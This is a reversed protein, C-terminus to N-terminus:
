RGLHIIADIVKSFLTGVGVAIIALSAFFMLLIVCTILFAEIKTLRPRNKSNEYDSNPINEIGFKQNMANVTTNTSVECMLSHHIMRSSIDDLETLEQELKFLNAKTEADIPGNYRCRQNTELNLYEYRLHEDTFEIHLRSELGSNKAIVHVGEDTVHHSLGDLIARVQPTSNPRSINTNEDM